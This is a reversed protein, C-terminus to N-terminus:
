HAASGPLPTESVPADSVVRWEGDTEHRWQCLYNGQDEFAAMGPPANPGPEFKLRYRGREVALSGSTTVAQTQLEFQFHGAALAKRWYAEIAARGVLPPSNPPMQWADTTFAAAVAAADGAAYAKEIEANRKEIFARVADPHTIAKAASVGLSGGSDCAAALLAALLAATRLLARM